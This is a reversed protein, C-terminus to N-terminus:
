GEKNILSDLSETKNKLENLKNEAEKNIDGCSSLFYVALIPLFLNKTIKKM